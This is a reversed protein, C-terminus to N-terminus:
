YAWLRLGIIGWYSLYLTMGFCALSLLVAYVRATMKVPKYFSGCATFLSLFSLIAFVLTSVFFVVNPVTLSGIELITQGGIGFAGLILSLVALLPLLRMRIYKSRNSKHKLKKYVHVPIWFLSYAISSLMITVAGFVLFRYLYIGGLSTRELYLDQSTYVMRGDATEVFASSAEPHWSRRFLNRSVPILPMRDEMFGQTFLTDNEYSVTVGGTLIEAFALLQLRPNRSEYYGCYNELVSASVPLSPPPIISDVRSNAFSRVRTFIDDYFSIDFLNQLVVYGLRKDLNASHAAMFGPVAGSHSLWKAGGKYSTGVGFSYGSELGARTALTSSSKGIRDFLSDPIVKVNGAKGRNLLFQLFLAMEKISANMAGAPEDYDYWVPFPKRNRDYGVALLRRCEESSGITSTKMGIPELLTVKLYDEYRQGSVKELIYGALVFGASSYSYRTGPQWRVKRLHAKEDLARRLPLVPGKFYFWNPHSDDFGATHELLHVIRVPDTDAWPNDIEIEPAIEKVPTTLDIKGEELLKLFGLGIFSKTCSGICFHTNETVPEGTEINALGFTGIWIISDASVIAVAAGPTSIENMISDLDAKLDEITQPVSGQEAPNGDQQSHVAPCFSFISLVASVIFFQRLLMSWIM